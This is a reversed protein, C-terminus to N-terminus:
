RYKLEQDFLIEKFGPEDNYDIEGEDLTFFGLALLFMKTVNYLRIYVKLCMTIFQLTEEIDQESHVSVPVYMRISPCIFEKQYVVRSINSCISISM